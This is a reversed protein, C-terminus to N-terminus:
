NFYATIWRGVVCARCSPPPSGQMSRSVLPAGETLGPDDERMPAV